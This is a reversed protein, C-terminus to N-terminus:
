AWPELVVTLSNPAISMRVATEVDFLSFRHFVLTGIPDHRM